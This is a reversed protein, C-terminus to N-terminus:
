ASKRLKLTNRTEQLM